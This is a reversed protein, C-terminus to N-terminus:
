KAVRPAVAKHATRHTCANCTFMYEFSVPLSACCFVAPRAPLSSNSDKSPGASANRSLCGAQHPLRNARAELHANCTKSHLLDAYLAATAAGASAQMRTRLALRNM